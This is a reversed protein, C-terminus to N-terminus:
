GNDNRCGAIIACSEPPKCSAGCQKAKAPDKDLQALLAEHAALEQDNAQLVPLHLGSLDISAARPGGGTDGADDAILLADQGRTLNIYVDALLEADLCHATCPAARTTWAWATACHM